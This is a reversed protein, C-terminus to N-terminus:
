PLAGSDKPKSRGNTPHIEFARHLRMRELLRLTSPVDCTLSVDVGFRRARRSASLLVSLGRYDVFPVRCLDIVLQQPKTAVARHVAQGLEPAHISDLDGRVQLVTRQGVVRQAVTFVGDAYESRRSARANPNREM